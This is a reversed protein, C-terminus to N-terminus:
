VAVVDSMINRNVRFFNRPITNRKIDALRTLNPGFATKIVDEGEVDPASLLHADESFPRLIEEGSRAWDRHTNTEGPRDM